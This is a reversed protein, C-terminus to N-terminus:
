YRKKPRPGPLDHKKPGAVPYILHKAVDQEDLAEIQEEASAQKQLEEASPTWNPDIYGRKEM